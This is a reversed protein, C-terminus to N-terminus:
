NGAVSSVYEAVTEIQDVSLQDAFAPMAGSGNTVRDVALEVSPMTEDLNPGITGTTGADGLIHCSGCGAALFIEKGDSLDAIGPGSCGAIGEEELGANRLGACAAVYGAVDNADAGTYIEAPMVSGARPIDIQRLTVTFFTSDEFGDARAQAFADDMNPGITGNTGADEMVHCSGCGQVFLEKGHALDARAQINPIEEGSSLQDEGGCAAALLAILVLTGVLRSIM